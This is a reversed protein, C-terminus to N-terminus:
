PKFWACENTYGIQVGFKYRAVMRVNMSGDVPTMDITQVNNADDLLDTGVFLNSPNAAIIHNDPIGPSAMVTYGMFNLARTGDTYRELSKGAQALQYYAATNPSVYFTLDQKRAKAPVKLYTLTMASVVNSDTIVFGTQTVPSGANLLYIFGNFSSYGTTTAGSYASPLNGSWINYELGEGIKAMMSNIIYNSFDTTMDSNLSGPRMQDALWYQELTSKCLTQNTMLSEPALIIESLTLTGQSNYDCAAAQILNTSWDAKRVNLKYKINPMVTVGNGAVTPASYVAASIMSSSAQGPYNTTLSFAM